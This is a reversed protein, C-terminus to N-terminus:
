NTLKTVADNLNDVPIVTLSSPIDSLESYDATPVLFITAGQAVAAEMKHQIGGIKGVVGDDDITGTVAVTRGKTVDIKGVKQIIGLSFVLGASPGGVNDIQIDIDEASYNIDFHQGLYKVAAVKASNQSTTM